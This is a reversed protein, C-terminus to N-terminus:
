FEEDPPPASVTVSQTTSAKAGQDDTVTLKVTYTGASTYTHSPNRVTSTGGDGFEWAWATITGDPDTSLDIFSVSLDNTSSDFSPEPARNPPPPPVFGPKQLSAVVNGGAFLRKTGVSDFRAEYTGTIAGSSGGQYFDSATYSAPGALFPGIGTVTASAADGSVTFTSGGTARATISHFTEAPGEVGSLNVSQEVGSATRRTFFSLGQSSASLSERPTQDVPSVTDLKCTQKAQNGAFARMSGVVITKFYTSDVKMRFGRAGSLSGTRTKGKTGTCGKAISRKLAGTSKFRLNLSGFKGMNARLTGKSLTSNLSLSVNKDFRYSHTQESAGSKRSLFINLSTGASTKYASGTMTYKKVKVPGFSLTTQPPTTYTDSQALAAAPAIMLAALATAAARATVFKLM